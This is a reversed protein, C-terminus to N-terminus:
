LIGALAFVLVALLSARHKQKQLGAAAPLMPSHADCTPLKFLHLLADAANRIACGPRNKFRNEPGGGIRM